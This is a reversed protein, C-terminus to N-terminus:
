SQSCYCLNLKFIELSVAAADWISGQERYLASSSKNSMPGQDFPSVYPIPHWKRCVRHPVTGRLSEDKIM